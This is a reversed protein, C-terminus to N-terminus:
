SFLLVYGKDALWHIMGATVAKTVSFCNFLSDPQVPRPDDKGLVGAATDIIVKGDKYACVQIGLIKDTTNKLELLFSRLKAEVDSNVPSDYLWRTNSAAAENNM